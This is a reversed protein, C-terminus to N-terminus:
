FRANIKTVGEFHTDHWERDKVVVGFVTPTVLFVGGM